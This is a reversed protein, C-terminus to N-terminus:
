TKDDVVEGIFGKTYLDKIFENVDADVQEPPVDDCMEKLHTIIDSKNRPHAKLFKWIILSVPNIILLSDSDVNFLIAGDGNEERLSVDPNALFSTTNSMNQRGQIVLKVIPKLVGQSGLENVLELIDKRIDKKKITYDNSIFQIIQNLNRKGNMLGLIRRAIKNIEILQLQKCLFVLSVDDFDEIAVEDQLTYRLNENLNIM